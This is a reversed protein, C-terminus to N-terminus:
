RPLNLETLRAKAGEAAPERALAQAYADAAASQLLHVECFFAIRLWDQAGAASSRLTALQTAVAADVVEFVGQLSPGPNLGAPEVTWLYREGPTLAVGDPLTLRGGKADAELVLDEDDGRYLSVLASRGDALPGDWVLTRDAAVVRGAAPSVRGQDGAGRVLVGGSTLQSAASLPVSAARVCGPSPVDGVVTAGKLQAGAGSLGVTGPGQLTLEQCTPLLSIAVTAGEPLTLVQGDTVMGGLAVAQEGSVVAGSVSLVLGVPAGAPAKPGALALAPLLLLLVRIM